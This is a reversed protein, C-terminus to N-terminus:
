ADGAKDIPQRGPFPWDARNKKVQIVPGSGPAATPATARKGKVQLTDRKLPAAPTETPPAAEAYSTEQQGPATWGGVGYTFGHACAAVEFETLRHPAQNLVLEGLEALRGTHAAVLNFMDTDDTIAPLSHIAADPAALAADPLLSKQAPKTAAKKQAPKKKAAAKADADRKVDSRIKKADVNFQAAIALLREPKDNGTYTNVVLDKAWMLDRILVAAQEIDLQDVLHRMKTSADTWKGNVHGSQLADPEWGYILGIFPLTDNHCDRLLAHAATRVEEPTLEPTAAARVASFLRKRYEREIAAKAQQEKERERQAMSRTRDTEPVPKGAAVLAAEIDDVKAITIMGAGHPNELLAVQPLQAGLLKRYSTTKGDVRLVQKDLDIYGGRFDSWTNPMIKKAAEGTIIPVGQSEAAKRDRAVHVARKEAFCTPDTCVDASAKETDFDPLNGSRKPCTTCPGADAVLSADKISFTAKGLDLTFNRRIHERAARFSMVDGQYDPTTISVAAQTQLEPTPIRAILQAVETTLKNDYFLDRASTCLACLKLRNYIYTRSHKLDEMIREVTYGHALMLNQFGEAEELPHPDERQLNELIQIKAAEADTLPRCIAPIRIKDAMIAARFRREGAVIEYRQPADATPTVPRILIPQAVGIDKISEALEALAPLSFRKRNTYSVRIHVLNYHGFVSGDDMVLENVIIPQDAGAIVTPPPLLTLSNSM